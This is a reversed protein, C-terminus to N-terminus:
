GLFIVSAVCYSDAGAGAEGSDTGAIWQAIPPPGLSALIEVVTAIVGDVRDDPARTAIQRYEVIVLQCTAM